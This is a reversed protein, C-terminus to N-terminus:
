EEYPILKIIDPVDPDREYEPCPPAQWWYKARNSACYGWNDKKGPKWWVCRACGNAPRRAETIIKSM